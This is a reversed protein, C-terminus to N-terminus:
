VALLFGRLLFYHFEGAVVLGDITTNTTGDDTETTVTTASLLLYM